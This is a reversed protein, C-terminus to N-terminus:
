AALPAAEERARSLAQSLRALMTLDAHLAVRELGRVRLRDLGYDHKLRGFEREVAGRGRYLDRFRQTHRPIRPFLSRRYRAAARSTRTRAACPSSRTAGALRASPTCSFTTTRRTAPSPRLSSGALTSLTSFRRSSSPSTGSQPRSEGLWRCTPRSASRWTFRTGM